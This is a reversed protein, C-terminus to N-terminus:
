DVGGTAETLAETTSDMGSVRRANQCTAAAQQSPKGVSLCARRRSIVHISKLVARAGRRICFREFVGGDQGTRLERVPEGCGRLQSPVDLLVFCVPIKVCVGRENKEHAHGEFAFVNRKHLLLSALAFLVVGVHDDICTPGPVPVSAAAETDLARRNLRLVDESEELM